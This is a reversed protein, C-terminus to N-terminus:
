PVYLHILHESVRFGDSTDSNFRIKLSDAYYATIGSDLTLHYETRYYDIATAEWQHVLRLRTADERQYFATQPPMPDLLYLDWALSDIAPQILFLLTHGQSQLLLYPSDIIFTEAHSERWPAASDDYRYSHHVVHHFRPESDTFTDVVEMKHYYRITDITGSFSNFIISDGKWVFYAGKKLPIWQQLPLHWQDARPPSWEEDKSCTALMFLAVLPWIWQRIDM